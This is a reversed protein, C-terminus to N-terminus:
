SCWPLLPLMSSPLLPCLSVDIEAIEASMWGFDRGWSLLQSVCDVTESFEGCMAELFRSRTMLLFRAESSAAGESPRSVLGQRLRERGSLFGRIDSGATFEVSAAVLPVDSECPVDCGESCTYSSTSPWGSM